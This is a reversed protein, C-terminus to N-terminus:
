KANTTGGPPNRTGIGSFKAHYEQYSYGLGLKIRGTISYYGTLGITYAYASPDTGSTRPNEDVNLSPQFGANLVGKIKPTFPYAATLGLDIGKYKINNFFIPDGPDVEFDYIRYGVSGVLEPSLADKSFFYRYKLHAALWSPSADTKQPISGTQDFRMWAT